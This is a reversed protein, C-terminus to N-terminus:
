LEWSSWIVSELTWLFLFMKIKTKFGIETVRSPLPTTLFCSWGDHSLLVIGNALSQFSLCQQHLWFLFFSRQTMKRRKGVGLRKYKKGRELGETEWCARQLYLPLSASLNTDWPFGVGRLIWFISYSIDSSNDIKSQLCWSSLKNTCSAFPAKWLWESVRWLVNWWQLNTAAWEVYLGPLFPLCMWGQWDTRPLFSLHLCTSSYVIAATYHLPAAHPSPWNKAPPFDYAVEIPRYCVIICGLVYLFILCVTQQSWHSCCSHFWSLRIRERLRLSM